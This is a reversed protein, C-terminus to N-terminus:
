ILWHRIGLVYRRMYDNRYTESKQKMLVLGEKYLVM